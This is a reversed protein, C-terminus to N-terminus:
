ALHSAVVTAYRSRKNQIASLIIQFSQLDANIITRGSVTIEQCRLRKLFM